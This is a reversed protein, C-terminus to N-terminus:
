IFGDDPLWLRHKNLIVHRTGIYTDNSINETSHRCIKNLGTVRTYRVFSTPRHKPGELKLSYLRDKHRLYSTHHLEGERAYFNEFENFDRLLAIVTSEGFIPKWETHRAKYLM